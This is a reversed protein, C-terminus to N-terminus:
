LGYFTKRTNKLADKGGGLPKDANRYDHRDCFEELDKGLESLRKKEATILDSVYEKAENGAYSSRELLASFHGLCFGGGNKIKDRFNEDSLYVEAVTKCYRDMHEDLYKCVVCTKERKRLSYAIKKAKKVGNADSVTKEVCALITSSQLALGLKSQLSFLDDFHRACFGLENVEKRTADEMVGEGLYNETLRKDVENKIRCLPCDNGGDFHEYILM